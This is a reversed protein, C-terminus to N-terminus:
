DHKKWRENYRERSEDAILTLHKSKSRLLEAKEQETLTRKDGCFPCPKLDKNTM